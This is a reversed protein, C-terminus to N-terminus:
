KLILMPRQSREGSETQLVTYYAGPPLDRSEFLITHSGSEMFGDSLIAVEQGLSNTVALRVIESRQLTFPIVTTTGSTSLGLPNPYNRGLVSNRQLPLVAEISHSYSVKGDRDIQKLRYSIRESSHGADPLADRFSYNKPHASTGQGPVFSRATWEGSGIARQVEFGYNNTETRTTWALEVRNDRISARLVSLEVPLIGTEIHDFTSVAINLFDLITPTCSGNCTSFDKNVRSSAAQSTGYYFIMPTSSTITQRAYMCSWYTIACLPIQFDLYYRGTSGIATSRAAGSYTGILYVTRLQTGNTDYIFVKDPSNGDLGVTLLHYGNSGRIEALWVTQKYGGPGTPDGNIQFRFYAVGNEFGVLVSASDSGTGYYIDSEAPSQDSPDQISFGTVYKYEVWTVPWGSPTFGSCDTCQALINQAFLFMGLYCYMFRSLTTISKM